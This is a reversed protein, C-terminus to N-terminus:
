KEDLTNKVLFTMEKRGAKLGDLYFWRCSILYIFFLILASVFDFMKEGLSKPM